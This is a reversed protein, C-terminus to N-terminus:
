FNRIRKPWLTPSYLIECSPQEHVPTKCSHPTLFFYVFSCGISVPSPTARFSPHSYHGSCLFSVTKLYIGLIYLFEDTPSVKPITPPMLLPVTFIRARFLNPLYHSSCM